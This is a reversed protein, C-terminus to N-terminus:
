NVIEMIPYEDTIKSGDIGRIAGRDYVHDFFRVDGPQKFGGM